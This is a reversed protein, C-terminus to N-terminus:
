LQSCEYRSLQSAETYKSINPKASRSFHGYESNNQDTNERMWVSYPSIRLWINLGFAPFHPGSYSGIRINKVCPPDSYNHKTYWCLLMSLLALEKLYFFGNLLIHSSVRWSSHWKLHRQWFSDRNEKKIWGHM